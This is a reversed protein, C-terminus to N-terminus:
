YRLWQYCYSVYILGSALAEDHQEEVRTPPDFPVLEDGDARQVGNQHM